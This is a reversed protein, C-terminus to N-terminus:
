PYMLRTGSGSKGLQLKLNDDNNVNVNCRPTEMEMTLVHSCSEIAKRIVCTQVHECLAQDNGRFRSTLADSVCIYPERETATITDGSMESLMIITIQVFPQQGVMLRGYCLRKWHAPWRYAPTMITVDSSQLSANQNYVWCRNSRIHVLKYIHIYIHVTYTHIYIYIYSSFSVFCRNLRAIDVIQM